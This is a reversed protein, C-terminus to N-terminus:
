PRESLLYGEFAGWKGAFTGLLRTNQSLIHPFQFSIASTHTRFTGRSPVFSEYQRLRVLAVWYALVPRPVHLAWNKLTGIKLNLTNFRASFTKFHRCPTNGPRNRYNPALIALALPHFQSRFIPRIFFRNIHFSISALGVTPFDILPDTSRHHCTGLTYHQYKSWGPVM